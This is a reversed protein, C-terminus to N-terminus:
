AMIAQAIRAEEAEGMLRRVLALGFDVATGAGRSTILLGDEVVRQDLLAEPLEERTSHHATFRKESLLGADKLVLPAACIVAVPKGLHLFAKALKAARGDQRLAKVAPGGPIFLLDFETEAGEDPLLLEARLPTKWAGCVEHTGNLSALMVEVGARRLLDIPTVTEIDEFGDMLLTLVRKM